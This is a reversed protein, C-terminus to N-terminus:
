TYKELLNIARQKDHGQLHEQGYRLIQLAELLDNSAQQANERIAFETLKDINLYTKNGELTKM